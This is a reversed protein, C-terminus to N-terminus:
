NQEIAIMPDVSYFLFHLSDMSIFQQSDGVFSFQAIKIVVTSVKSWQCLIM